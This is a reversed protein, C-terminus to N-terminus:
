IIILVHLTVIEQVYVLYSVALLVPRGIHNKTLSICTDGGAKGRPHMNRDCPGDAKNEAHKCDITALLDLWCLSLAVQFVCKQVGSRSTNIVPSATQINLTGVECWM